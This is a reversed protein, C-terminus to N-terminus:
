RRHSLRERNASVERRYHRLTKQTTAIPSLGFLEAQLTLASAMKEAVMLRAEKGDLDGGSACKAVRMGIVTSAELGLAWAEIGTRMWANFPTEIM